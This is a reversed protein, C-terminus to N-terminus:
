KEKNYKWVYGGATQHDGRTNKSISSVSIGTERSAQSLSEYSKIFNGDMDYQNVSKMTNKANNKFIENRCDECYKWNGTANEIENGCKKCFKTTINAEGIKVGMEYGKKFGQIDLYVNSVALLILFMSTLCLFLIGTNM